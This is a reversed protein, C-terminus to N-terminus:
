KLSSGIKRGWGGVVHFAVSILNCVRYVGSLFLGAPLSGRGNVAQLGADTQFHEDSLPLCNCSLTCVCLTGCSRGVSM